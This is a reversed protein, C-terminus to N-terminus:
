NVNGTLVKVQYLMLSATDKGLHYLRPGFEQWNPSDRAPSPFVALGADRAILAARNIHFPESVLIATHWNHARMIAQSYLINQITNHAQTEPVIAAPPVGQEELVRTLVAAETPGQATPGGSPIVYPAFGQRYLLAAHGARARICPSPGGEEAYVNCGLVLIVDAPAAYDTEAGISVYALDNGAWLALLL